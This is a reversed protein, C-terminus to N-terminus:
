LTLLVTCVLAHTNHSLDSSHSITVCSKPVDVFDIIGVYVPLGAAFIAWVDAVVPRTSNAAPISTNRVGHLGERPSASAVVLRTEAAEESPCLVKTSARSHDLRCRTQKEHLLRRAPWQSGSMRSV